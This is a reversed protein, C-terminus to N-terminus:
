DKKLNVNSPQEIPALQLAGSSDIPGSNLIDAKSKLLTNEKGDNLITDDILGGDSYNLRGIEVADSRTTSATGNWLISDGSLEKKTYVVEVFGTLLLLSLVVIKKMSIRKLLRVVICLTVSVYPSVASRNHLGEEM